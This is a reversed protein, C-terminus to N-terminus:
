GLYSASFYANTYRKSLSERTPAADFKKWADLFQVSLKGDEGPIVVANLAHGCTGLLPIIYGYSEIVYFRNGTNSSHEILHKELSELNQTKAVKTLLKNFLIPCIDEDELGKYFQPTNNCTLISKDNVLNYLLCHALLNCNGSYHFMANNVRQAMKKLSERNTTDCPEASVQARLASQIRQHEPLTPNIREQIETPILPPKPESFHYKVMTVSSTENM